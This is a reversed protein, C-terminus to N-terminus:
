SGGSGFWVVHVRGDKGVALHGGRITGAAVASGPVSNVRIPKSWTEQAADRRRYFLDGAGAEGRYYVLHITGRADTVAQPQIGGDPTRLVEVRPGAARVSSGCGALPVAAILLLLPVVLRTPHM